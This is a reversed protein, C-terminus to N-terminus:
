LLELVEIYRERKGIWIEVEDGVEAGIMAGGVPSIPTLIVVSTGDVAVKRGGGDPLMLWWAKTGADDVHVLSGIAVRDTQVLIDQGLWSVLRRLAGVRVAQGRALYSAETARTDYKGESKSESSTAEATALAAMREVGDLEVAFALRVAAMVDKRNM